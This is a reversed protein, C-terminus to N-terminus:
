FQDLIRKLNVGVGEDSFHQEAYQGARKALSNRLQEDSWLQGMADVLEEASHPKVLLGTNGSDIYDESGMCRTAVVARNMRMGEVITVQGAATEHNILPVVNVRARQALRHCEDPSLNSRVEVNSPVSLGKLAHQGAVVVARVGLKKVAEFFTHYDRNASGMALVFPDEQDEAAHIPIEARQFPVFEFREEPLNLWRSVTECERRSHVVFRDIEQLTASAVVQKMGPYLHGVNFSWAVVPTDKKASLRKNLGVMAALQPFVTIVGGQTQQWAHSGQSWYDLWEALSTNRSLRSHWSQKGQCPIKTFTHRGPAIFDDLWSYQSLYQNDFFHAAVTWHM